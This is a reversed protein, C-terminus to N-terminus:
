FANAPLRSAVRAFEMVEGMMLFCSLDATPTWRFWGNLRPVRQGVAKRWWGIGWSVDEGYVKDKGDSCFSSPFGVEFRVHLGRPDDSLESEIDFLITM